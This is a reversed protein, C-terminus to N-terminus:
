VAFYFNQIYMYMVEGSEHIDMSFICNSAHINIATRRRIRIVERANKEQFERCKTFSIVGKLGGEEM